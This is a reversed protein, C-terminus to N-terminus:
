PQPAVDEACSPEEVRKAMVGSLRVKQGSNTINDLYYYYTKGVEVTRDVFSYRGVEGEEVGEARVIEQNIRVYPGPREEARYVLYGYISQESTATWALSAEPECGGVGEAALSENAPPEETASGEAPAALTRGAAFALLLGLVATVASSNM